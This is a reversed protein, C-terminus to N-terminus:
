PVNLVFRPYRPRFRAILSRTASRLALDLARPGGYSATPRSPACKFKRPPIRCLRAARHAGVPALNKGHEAAYRRGPRLGPAELLRPALSGDKLKRKRESRRRYRAFCRLRARAAVSLCSVVVVLQRGRPGSRGRRVAAFRCLAPTRGHSIPRWRTVPESRDGRHLRHARALPIDFSQEALGEDGRSVRARGGGWLVM